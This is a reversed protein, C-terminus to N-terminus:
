RERDREALLARVDVLHSPPDLTATRWLIELDVGSSEHVVADRMDAVDRWPIGPGLTHM